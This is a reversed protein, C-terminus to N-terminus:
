ETKIRISNIVNYYNKEYTIFHFNRKLLEDVKSSGTYTYSARVKLTQRAFSTLFM